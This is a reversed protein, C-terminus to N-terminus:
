LVNMAFMFILSYISNCPLASNGITPEPMTGGASPASVSGPPLAGKIQGLDSEDLHPFKYGSCIVSPEACLIYGPFENLDDPIKQGYGTCRTSLTRHGGSKISAITISYESGNNFCEVQYCTGQPHAFKGFTSELCRSRKGGLEGADSTLMDKDTSTNFCDADTSIVYVPCFQTWADGGGNGTGYNFRSPVNSMSESIDCFSKFMASPSCKIGGGEQSISKASCFERSHTASEVVNGSVADICKNQVFPCGAKYGWFAGEVLTTAYSYDVTYWGSDELLAFTMPSIHLISSSILGVMVETNTTRYSWHSSNIACDSEQNSELEAGTLDSCGFYTKAASVVKPTQVEIACNSNNLCNNLDSYSLSSSSHIPCHCNLLGRHDVIQMVGDPFFFMYEGNNQWNAKVSTGEVSCTYRAHPPLGTVSDRAVRSLGNSYRFFPITNTNFGLAHLTEHVVVNKFFLRSYDSSVNVALPCINISGIIPRNCQDTQCSLAFALTGGQGPGDACIPDNKATVLVVYDADVRAGGTL